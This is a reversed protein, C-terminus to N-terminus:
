KLKYVLMLGGRYPLFEGSKNFNEAGDYREGTSLFYGKYFGQQSGAGAFLELNFRESVVFQYGLTIGIMINYGKQYRDSNLYNWKQLKYVSGGIHSGIFFGENINKTYYRIEPFVMVFEQPYGNVSKWFSATVDFQFTLKKAIKTEVGFEPIGVLATILNVKLNTQGYSFQVLLLLILLLQYHHNKLKKLKSIKNIIIQNSYGL